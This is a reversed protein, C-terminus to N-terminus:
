RRWIDVLPSDVSSSQLPFMRWLAEFFQRLILAIPSLHASFVGNPSWSYGAIGQALTTLPQADGGPSLLFSYVQPKAGAGKTAIFCLQRLDKGPRWRPAKVGTYTGEATMRVPSGTGDSKQLWLSTEVRDAELVDESLVFAVWQGDPSVQPDSPTLLSFLDEAQLLRGNLGQQGPMGGGRNSSGFLDDDDDDYYAAPSAAPRLQATIKRLRRQSPM